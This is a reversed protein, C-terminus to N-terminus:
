KVQLFFLTDKPLFGDTRVLEFGSEAAAKEIREKITLRDADLKGKMEKIEEDIEYDPPALIILPAGPKLSPIMNKMLPVPKELMHFVWVMFIMDLSKEPLLPDEEEGMIIEINTINDRRCRFRLFDLADESIDNAYVRGAEGVRRALHVTYRGRGAGVEGIVMGPKLGIADMVKEPPQREDAIKKEWSEVRQVTAEDITKVQSSLLGAFCLFLVPVPLIVTRFRM